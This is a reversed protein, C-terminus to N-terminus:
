TAQWGSPSSPSGAEIYCSTCLFHGNSYNFTGEEKTVYEDPTMQAEEAAEVYEEIQAPHKNCGTCLPPPDMNPTGWAVERMQEFQALQGALDAIPYIFSWRMGYTRVVIERATQESIAGPIKAYGGQLPMGYGFTVFYKATDAM